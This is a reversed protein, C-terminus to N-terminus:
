QFSIPVWLSPTREVRQPPMDSPARPWSWWGQPGDNYTRLALRPFAVSPRAVAERIRLEIAWGTPTSTSAVDLQADLEAQQGITLVVAPFVKTAFGDLTVRVEYTGPALAGARYVGAEDSVGERVAGTAVSTISVTAGPLVGGTADRITGSLAARDLSTQGWAPAAANWLVACLALVALAISPRCPARV